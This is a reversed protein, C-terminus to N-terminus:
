ARSAGIRSKGNSAPSDAEDPQYGRYGYRYSYGYGYGDAGRAGNLVTGVLPADAQRLLEIARHM